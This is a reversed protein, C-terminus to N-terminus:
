SRDLCCDEAEMSSITKVLSLKYVVKIGAAQLMLKINQDIHVQVKLLFAGNAIHHQLLIDL